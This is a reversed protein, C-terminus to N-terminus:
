EHAIMGCSTSTSQRSADAAIDSIRIVHFSDPCSYHRSRGNEEVFDGLAAAHTKPANVAPSEFAMALPSRHRIRGQVARLASSLQDIHRALSEREVIVTDNVARHNQAGEHKEVILVVRPGITDLVVPRFVSASAKYNKCRVSTPAMYNQGAAPM